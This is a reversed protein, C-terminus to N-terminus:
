HSVWCGTTSNVARSMATGPRTGRVCGPRCGWWRTATRARTARWRGSGTTPCSTWRATRSRVRCRCADCTQFVPCLYSFAPRFCRACTHSRLDSVGPVPILVCTQFVPCLYSFAPRFCRAYTHSCLDSVGPVPILVCTQFVPCLYSFSPRFCRAYTHSLLDSVDPVRILFCTQFVPCEYSFM